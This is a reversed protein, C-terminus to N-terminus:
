SKFYHGMDLDAILGPQVPEWGMRQRTLVGSAPLDAAFFSGLWGFHDTAQEVPVSTVPLGLHRGMVEAIDRVPVGDDGIANYRAGAPAQELALLFLRAADLRHVAAWRNAGDGPYAAVGQDRAIQILRPVLGQDGEGHVTPPLRIAAARVGRDVFRLAASESVRHGAAPATEDETATCGSELVAIGTAVVFPRDSGALVDGMADIALGDTKASGAFDPFAHVYGTHVVGDTAAAGARLSDLDELSGRHVEAGAAVLAAAAADSRALGLVQHGNDLLERVTASGIFGTAGTVFVRM